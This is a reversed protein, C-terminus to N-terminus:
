QPQQLQQTADPFQLNVVEGSKGAKALLKDNVYITVGGANGLRVNMTRAASHKYAENAQLLIDFHKEQDAQIRIWTLAQAEFRITFPGAPQPSAPAPIITPPSTAAPSTSSKGNKDQQATETATTTTTVSVSTSARAVVTESPATVRSPEDQMGIKNTLFFYVLFAIGIILLLPIYTGPASTQLSKKVDRSKEVGAKDPSAAEFKDLVENIDVGVEEAFLKIMGRLYIRPPLLEHRDEEIAELLGKRIKTERAIEDLSKNSQIRGTKLFQGVTEM